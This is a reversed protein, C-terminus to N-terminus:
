IDKDKAKVPSEVERESSSGAGSQQKTLTVKEAATLVLEEMKNYAGIVKASESEMYSEQLVVLFYYLSALPFHEMSLISDLKTFNISSAYHRLWVAVEMLSLLFLLGSIRKLYIDLMKAGLLLTISIGLVHMLLDTDDGFGTSSTTKFGFKKWVTYALYLRYLGFILSIRYMGFRWKVHFNVVEMMKQRVTHFALQLGTDVDKLTAM